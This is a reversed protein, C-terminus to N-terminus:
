INLVLQKKAKINPQKKDPYKSKLEFIRSKTNIYIKNISVGINKLFYLYQKIANTKM